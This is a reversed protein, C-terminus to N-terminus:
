KAKAPTFNVKMQTWRFEINVGDPMMPGSSDM